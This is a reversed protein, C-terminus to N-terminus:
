LHGSNGTALSLLGFFARPVHMKLTVSEDFGGCHVSCFALSAESKKWNCRSPAVIGVHATFPM